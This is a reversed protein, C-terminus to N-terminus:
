SDPIWKEIMNIKGQGPNSGTVEVTALLYRGQMRLWKVWFTVMFVAAIQQKIYSLNLL